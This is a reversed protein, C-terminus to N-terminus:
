LFKVLRRFYKSSYILKDYKKGSWTKYHGFIIGKGHWLGDHAEPPYYVGKTKMPIKREPDFGELSGKPYFFGKRKVVGGREDRIIGEPEPPYYWGRYYGRFKALPNFM